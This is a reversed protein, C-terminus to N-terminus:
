RNTATTVGPQSGGARPRLIPTMPPSERRMPSSLTETAARASAHRPAIGSAMLDHRDQTGDQGPARAGAHAPVLCGHHDSRFLTTYPFRTPAPLRPSPSSFLP